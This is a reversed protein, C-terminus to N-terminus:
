YYHDIENVICQKLANMKINDDLNRFHEYDFNIPVSVSTEEAENRVSSLYPHSLAEDVTIRKHPNFELCRKMLDVGSTSEESALYPLMRNWNVADVHRLERVTRKLEEDVIFELDDESPTGIVSIIQQIHEKPRELIQNLPTETDEYKKGEIISDSRSSFLPTINLYKVSDAHPQLTQLLEYMVCGVSFIDIAGDYRGQRLSLEPARYNRTVVLPTLDEVRQVGARHDVSNIIPLDDQLYETSIQRSLGFDILTLKPISNLLINAPKIDRHVIQASQLSYYIDNYVHLYKLTRFLQYMIFKIHQVSWGGVRPSSMAINTLNVGCNEEILCLCDCNDNPPRLVKSIVNYIVSKYQLRPLNPHNLQRLISMERLCSLTM